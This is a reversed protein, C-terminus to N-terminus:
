SFSFTVKEEQFYERPFPEQLLLQSEGKAQLGEGIKNEKKLPRIVDGGSALQTIELM